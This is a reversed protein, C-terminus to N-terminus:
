HIGLCDNDSGHCAEISLGNVPLLLVSKYREGPFKGSVRGIGIEFVLEDVGVLAGGEEVFEIVEVLVVRVDTECM